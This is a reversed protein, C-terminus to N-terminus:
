AMEPSEFRCTGERIATVPNKIPPSIMVCKINGNM